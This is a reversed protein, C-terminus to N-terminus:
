TGPGGQERSGSTLNLPDGRMAVLGAGSDNQHNPNGSSWDGMDVDDSTDKNGGDTEGVKLVKTTSKGFLAQKM